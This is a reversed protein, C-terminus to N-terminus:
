RIQGWSGVCWLLRTRPLLAAFLPAWLTLGAMSRSLVAALLQKQSLLALISPTSGVVTNKRVLRSAGTFSEDGGFSWNGYIGLHVNLTLENDFGVFLHKGHAFAQAIRAGDVLAAGEAYRGQPSTVRVREGTFVDNFQRAIRHISHGEPM